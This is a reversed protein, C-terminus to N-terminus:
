LPAANTGEGGSDTPPERYYTKTLTNALINHLKSLAGVDKSM